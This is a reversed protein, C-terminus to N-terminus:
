HLERELHDHLRMLDIGKVQLPFFQESGAKDHSKPGKELDDAGDDDDGNNDERNEERHM